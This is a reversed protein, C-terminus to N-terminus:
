PTTGNKTSDYGCRPCEWIGSRNKKMKVKQCKPCKPVNEVGVRKIKRLANSM